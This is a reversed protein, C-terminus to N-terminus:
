NFYWKPKAGMLMCVKLALKHHLGSTEIGIGIMVSGFIFMINDSFYAPSVERAARIGFLPLLFVPM